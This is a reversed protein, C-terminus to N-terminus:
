RLLSTALDDMRGRVRGVVGLGVAILHGVHVRDTSMELANDYEAELVVGVQKGPQFLHDFLFLDAISYNQRSEPRYPVILHM